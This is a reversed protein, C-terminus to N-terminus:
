ILTDNICPRVNTETTSCLPEATIWVILDEGRRTHDKDILMTLHSLIMLRIRQATSSDRHCKYQSQSDNHGKIRKM